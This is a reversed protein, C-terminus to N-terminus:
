FLRFDGFEFHEIKMDLAGLKRLEQEFFEQTPWVCEDSGDKEKVVGPLLGSRTRGESNKFQREQEPSKWLHVWIAKDVNSDDPISPVVWRPVPVGKYARKALKGAAEPSSGDIGIDNRQYVMGEIKALKKVLSQRCGKPFEITHLVAASGGIASQCILMDKGLLDVQIAQM